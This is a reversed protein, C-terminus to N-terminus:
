LIFWTGPRDVGFIAYIWVCYRNIAFGTVGRSKDHADTECLETGFQTQKARYGAPEEHTPRGRRVGEPPLQSQEYLRSACARASPGLPHGAALQHGIRLEEARTKM